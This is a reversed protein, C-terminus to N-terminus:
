QSHVAKATDTEMQLQRIGISKETKFNDSLFHVQGSTMTPEFYQTIQYGM